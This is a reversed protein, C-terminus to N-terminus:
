FFAIVRAAENPASRTRFFGSSRISNNYATFSARSSEEQPYDMLLDVKNKVRNIHGNAKPQRLSLRRNLGLEGAESESSESNVVDAPAKFGEKEGLKWPKYKRVRAFLTSLKVTVGVALLPLGVIKIKPSPSGESPDITVDPIADGRM